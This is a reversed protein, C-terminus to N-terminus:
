HYFRKKKLIFTVNKDLFKTILKYFFYQLVFRAGNVLGLDDIKRKQAYSKNLVRPTSLRGVGNCNNVSSSNLSGALTKIWEHRCLDKLKMRKKPDINLLGKLLQKAQASVNRWRKEKFDLTTSANRIREIIKDQTIVSKNSSATSKECNAGMKTAIVTKGNNCTTAVNSSSKEDEEEDSTLISEDVLYDGCFPVRGCLMTYLIVGLSWLDCSEDYGNTNNLVM